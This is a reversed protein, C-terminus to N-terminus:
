HKYVGDKYLLFDSYVTMAVEFPGQTVLENMM